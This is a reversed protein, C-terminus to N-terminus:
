KYNIIKGDTLDGAGITTSSPSESPTNNANAGNNTSAAPEVTEGPNLTSSTADVVPEYVTSMISIQKPLSLFFTTLKM